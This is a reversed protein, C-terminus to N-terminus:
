MVLNKEGEVVFYDNKNQICTVHVNFFFEFAVDLNKGIAFPRWSL